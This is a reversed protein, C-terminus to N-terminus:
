VKKFAPGITLGVTVVDYETIPAVASPHAEVLVAVATTVM